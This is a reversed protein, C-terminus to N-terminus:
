FEKTEIISKWFTSNSVGYMHIPNTDQRIKEFSNDDLFSRIYPIFDKEACEVMHEGNHVEGSPWSGMTAYRYSGGSTYISTHIDLLSTGALGCEWVRGKVQRFNSTLTSTSMTKVKISDDVPEGFFNRRLAPSFANHICLKSRKLIDAYQEHNIGSSRQGCQIYIKYDSGRKMKELNRLVFARQETHVSGLFCIDIDKITQAPTLKKYLSNVQPTYGSLIPMYKRGGLKTASVLGKIQYRDNTFIIRDWTIHYSNTSTKSVASHIWPWVSDPWLYYHVGPLKDTVEKTPNIPSDGMFCFIFVSDAEFEGRHLMDSLEQNIHTNKSVLLEDPHILRVEVNPKVPLESLTELLSGTINVFNNSPGCTPRGDCWKEHIIWVQTM